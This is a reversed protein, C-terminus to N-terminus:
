PTSLSRPNIRFLVNVNEFPMTLVDASAARVNPTRQNARTLEAAAGSRPSSSALESDFPVMSRRGLRLLDCADTATPRRSPTKDLMRLVLDDIWSPIDSNHQSMLSPTFEVIMQM